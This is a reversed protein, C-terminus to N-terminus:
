MSALGPEVKLTRPNSERGRSSVVGGRPEDSRGLVSLKMSATVVRGAENESSFRACIKATTPVWLSPSNLCSKTTMVSSSLSRHRSSALFRGLPPRFDPRDRATTVVGDVDDPLTKPKPEPIFKSAWNMADNREGGGGGGGVPEGGM